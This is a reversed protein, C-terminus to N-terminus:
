TFTSVSNLTLVLDDLACIRVNSSHGCRVEITDPCIFHHDPGQVGKTYRVSERPATVVFSGTAYHGPIVDNFTVDVTFSSAANLLARHSVSRASFESSLTGDELASVVRNHCDRVVFNCLADVLARTTADGANTTAEVGLWDMHITETPSVRCNKTRSDAPSPHREM